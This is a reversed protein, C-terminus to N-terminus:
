NVRWVRVGMIGEKMTAYAKTRIGFEKGAEMASYIIEGSKMTPIFFSDGVEMGMFPYLWEPENLLPNNSTM